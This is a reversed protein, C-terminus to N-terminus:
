PATRVIEVGVTRAAALAGPKEVLVRVQRVREHALCVDAVAEALRELLLFSSGTVLSTVERTIRSYDVTDAISDTRGAESLDTQLTINVLVKQKGTREHERVGVICELSLDRIHIRDPPPPEDAM